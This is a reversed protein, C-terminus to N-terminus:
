ALPTRAGTVWASDHKEFGLKPYYEVAKPAALLILNAQKGVLSQTQQILTKGVGGKQYAVDVALDSLYRCCKFDTVSHAVGVLKTDYWVTCLIDAHELMAVLTEEGEIPWREGLTSRILM